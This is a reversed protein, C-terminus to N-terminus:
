FQKNIAALIEEKSYQSLLYTVDEQLNIRGVETEVVTALRELEEDDCDAFNDNCDDEEDEDYDAEDEWDEIWEQDDPDYEGFDTEPIEGTFGVVTNPLPQTYHGVVEYRCVRVKQCSHDVPVSVVDAPSFKCILYQSDPRGYWKVYQLSGVHYGHSCHRDKNDDVKNRPMSHVSGITNLVNGSFIDYYDNRVAKYAYVYGDDDIPLNKHELFTYFEQVARSSPNQNLLRYFAFFPKIDCGDIKMEYVRDSLVQPLAVRETNPFEPDQFYVVGNEITFAGDHFLDKFEATKLLSIALDFDKERVAKRVRLFRGRDSLLVTLAENNHVLTISTSTLVVPITLSM